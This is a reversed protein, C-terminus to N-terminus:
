IKSVLKMLSTMYQQNKEDVMYEKTYKKNNFYNQNDPTIDYLKEIRLGTKVLQNLLSMM